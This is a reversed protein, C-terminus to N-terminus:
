YTSRRLLNSADVLALVVALLVWAVMDNFAAASLTIRELSIAMVKSERPLSALVPLATLSLGVGTGRADCFASSQM